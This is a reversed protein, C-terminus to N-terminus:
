TRTDVKSLAYSPTINKQWWDASSMVRYLNEQDKPAKDEDVMQAALNPLSKQLMKWSVLDLAYSPINNNNNNLLVYEAQYSGLFYWNGFGLVAGVLAAIALKKWTGQLFNVIDLLSIEAEFERSQENPLLNPSNQIQTM